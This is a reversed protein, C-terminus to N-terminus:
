VWRPMCPVLVRFSMFCAPMLPLLACPSLPVSSVYVYPMGHMRASPFTPCMPCLPVCFCSCLPVYPMLAHHKASEAKYICKLLKEIIEPMFPM